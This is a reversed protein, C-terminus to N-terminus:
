STVNQLHTMFINFGAYCFPNLGILVFTWDFSAKKNFKLSTRTTELNVPLTPLVGEPPLARGAQQVRQDQSQDLLDGPHALDFSQHQQPVEGADLLEAVGGGALQLGDHALSASLLDMAEEVFM